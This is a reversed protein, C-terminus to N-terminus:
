ERDVYWDHRDFPADYGLFGLLRAKPSLETPKGEFRILRRSEPKPYAAEWEMVHKWARENVVNHIAIVARMDRESPVHGKRKMANFFMQESPYVWHEGAEKQHEPTFSSSRPISSVIRKTSLAMKQGPAPLQNPPPM